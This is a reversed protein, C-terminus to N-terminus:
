TTPHRYSQLAAIFRQSLDYPTFKELPQFEIGVVPGGAFDELVKGGFEEALAAFRERSLCYKSMDLQYSM